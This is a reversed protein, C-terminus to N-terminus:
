DHIKDRDVKDRDVWWAIKTKSHIEVHTAFMQINQGQCKLM